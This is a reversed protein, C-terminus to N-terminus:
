IIVKLKYKGQTLALIVLFDLHYRFAESQERTLLIASRCRYCYIDKSM